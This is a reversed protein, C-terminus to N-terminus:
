RGYNYGFVLTYGAILSMVDKDQPMHLRIEGLSTAGAVGFIADKRKWLRAALLLCAERIALPATSYAGWTGAVTVFDVYPDSNIQWEKGGDATLVIKGYPPDNLPLLVYETTVTLVEDDGNTLTTVTLLPRDLWLTRGDTDKGVVFKRTETESYFTTGTVDDIWRSAAEVYQELLVDDAPDVASTTSVQQAITVTAGTVADTVAETVTLQNAAVVTVTFYGNNAVSGSVLIIDGVNFRNLGYASDRITYVGGTEDFSITTATYTGMDKLRQKIQVLTAYGNTITM